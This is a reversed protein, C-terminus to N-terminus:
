AKEWNSLFREIRDECYKRCFEKDNGYGSGDHDFHDIACHLLDDVLDKIDDARSM